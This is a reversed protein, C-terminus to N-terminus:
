LVENGIFWPKDGLFDSFNKIKTKVNKVYDARISEQM